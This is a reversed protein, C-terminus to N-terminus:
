QRPPSAPPAQFLGYRGRPGAPALLELGELSLEPPMAQRDIAVLDTPWRPRGDVVSVDRRVPVPYRCDTLPGVLTVERGERRQQRAVLEVLQADPLHAEDWTAAAGRDVLLRAAGLVDAPSALLLLATLPVALTALTLAALRPWAGRAVCGAAAGGALVSLPGPLAATTAWPGPLLACVVAVLTFILAHRVGEPAVPVLPLLLALALALPGAALASRGWGLLVDAADPPTAADLADAPSVTPQGHQTLHTAIARGAPAPGLRAALGVYPACAIAAVLAMGALGPLLRLLSHRDILGDAVFLFALLSVLLAVGAAGEAAAIGGLVSALAIKGGTPKASWDAIEHFALFGYTALFMESPREAALDLLLPLSLLVAASWAAARGGLHRRVHVVLAGLLLAVFTAVFLRAGIAGDDLWGALLLAASPTPWSGPLVALTAALDGRLAAQAPLALSASGTAPGPPALVMALHPLALVVTVAALPIRTALVPSLDLQQRGEALREIARPVRPLGLLVLVADAVWPVWARTLGFAAGALVLLALGALGLATASVVLDLPERPAARPVRLLTLGGVFCAVLHVLHRLLASGLLAVQGELLLAAGTVVGLGLLALALTSWRGGGDNM